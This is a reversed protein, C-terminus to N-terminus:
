LTAMFSDIEQHWTVPDNRLLSEHNANPYIVLKKRPAALNQYIADTEKKLVFIDKAGWQLLLPCQVRKAYAYTSHAFGNYGQEVGMWFTVLSAFPEAPFGLVRARAQLHEKLTGFPMEALVGAVQVKGDSIAKMVIVAGLSVGYLIIKPTGKQQVYSVAAQVEATEDVGFSNTNGESNGHARLDIMLIDYGKQYLAAAEDLLMQKNATIGHFIVICGKSSDATGYWSDLMKGDHTNITVQQFPFSPTQTIPQKYYTPGVFLKWTKALFNRSGNAPKAEAEYFHTFKYAYIAASINVLILQVLIAWLFLRLYSSVQKTKTISM